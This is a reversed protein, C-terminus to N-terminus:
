FLFAEEDWDADFVLVDLDLLRDFALYVSRSERQVGQKRRKKSPTTMTSMISWCQIDETEGRMVVDLTTLRMLVTNVNPFIMQGSSM